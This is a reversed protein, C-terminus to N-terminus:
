YCADIKLLDDPFTYCFLRIKIIILIQQKLAMKPLIEAM